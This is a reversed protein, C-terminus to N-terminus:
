NLPTQRTLAGARSLGGRFIWRAVLVGAIGALLLLTGALLAAAESGTAHTQQLITVIREFKDESVAEVTFEQRSIYLAFGLVVRLPYSV